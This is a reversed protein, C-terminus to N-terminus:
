MGTLECNVRHTFLWGAADLGAPPLRSWSPSTKEEEGMEVDRAPQAKSGDSELM